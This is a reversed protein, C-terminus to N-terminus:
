NFHITARALVDTGASKSEMCHGCERFHEGIAAITGGPPTANTMNARGIQVKSTRVWYGRTASTTDELLLDAVGFLIVLVRDGDAVGSEYVAGIIDPEDTLGDVLNVGNDIASETNVLTGKVSAAGTANIYYRGFGGEATVIINEGLQGPHKGNGITM